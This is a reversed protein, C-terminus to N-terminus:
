VPDNGFFVTIGEEKALIVILPIPQSKSFLNVPYDPLFANDTYKEVSPAFITTANMSFPYNQFKM